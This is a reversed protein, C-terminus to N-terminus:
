NRPPPPPPQRLLIVAWGSAGGGTYTRVFEAPTMWEYNAAGPYNNDLVAFWQDTAHVLSVMHSIRAGGYRGTPSFSYTVGPMRGSACAKKLIEIDRGEVQLYEPEPVNQEKCFATIMAAVKSPYGGGPKQTMWKQFSQLQPVDQWIASHNISTFVCLGAGSGPGRPGMGGTNRMHLKGPLDIQIETLGDPAVQGAVKAGVDMAASEQGRFFGTALLVIGLLYGLIRM